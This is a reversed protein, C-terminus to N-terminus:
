GYFIDKRNTLYYLKVNPFQISAMVFLVNHNNRKGQFLKQRKKMKEVAPMPRKMKPRGLTNQMSLPQQSAQFDKLTNNCEYNLLGDECTSNESIFAKKPVSGSFASYYDTVVNELSKNTDLVGTKLISTLKILVGIIPTKNHHSSAASLLADTHFKLHRYGMHKQKNHPPNLDNEMCNTDDKAEREHLTKTAGESSWEDVETPMVDDHEDSEMASPCNDNAM